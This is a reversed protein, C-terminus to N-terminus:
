PQSQVMELLHLAERAWVNSTCKVNGDHIDGDAASGVNDTDKVTAVIVMEKGDKNPVANSTGGGQPAM